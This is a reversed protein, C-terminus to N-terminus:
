AAEDHAAPVNTAPPTSIHAQLEAGARRHDPRLWFSRETKRWGKAIMEAPSLCRRNGRWEGPKAFAGVRHRDFSRVSGFLEGCTPCQCRGGTLRFREGRSM